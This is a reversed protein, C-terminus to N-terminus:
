KGKIIYIKENNSNVNIDLTELSIHAAASDDKIGYLAQSLQETNDVIDNVDIGNEEFRKQREEALKKTVIKNILPMNIMIGNMMKPSFLYAFLVLVVGSVFIVGFFLGILPQIPANGRASSEVDFKNKIVFWNILSMTIAPVILILFNNLVHKKTSNYTAYKWVYFWLYAYRAVLFIMKITYLAIIGSVLAFNEGGANTIKCIYSIAFSLVIYISGLYNQFKSVEGYRGKAHILTIQAECLIILATSSAYLISFYPNYFMFRLAEDEGSLTELSKQAIDGYLASAFYPSLISMNIFTFGAVLYIYLEYKAYSEWQIRGRKAVLVVFFERFSTIFNTMILRTNVAIVLYLSLTSSVGLGLVLSAIIVDTNLLLSTGISSVVIKRKTTNLKFSNFDKYYKLWLYKKKAYLYIMAGKIPSYLLISIFPIIANVNKLGLLYFLIWYVTIDTFLIVLRRISNKNDAAILNEYVNFWYSGVFNKFGFILTIILLAWYGLLTTEGNQTINLGIQKWSSTDFISGNASVGVYLPYIFALLLVLIISTLASKKYAKKSTSYIENATIWDNQVIPKVLLITTALGLSGEATAILASFSSVLRIFGNFQSGFKELVWYITLFQIIANFLSITTGIIISFIGQKTSVM